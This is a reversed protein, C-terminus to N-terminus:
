EIIIKKTFSRNENNIKFICIGKMFRDIDIETKYFRLPLRMLLQGTIDYVEAVSNVLISEDYITILIKNKDLDQLIQINQSDQNENLGACTMVDVTVSTSGTCGTVDVGTVTYTTTTSPHAFVTSGTSSSLGTAPAWSYTIAGSATLSVSDGICIIPNTPFATLTPASNITIVIADTATMSNNDYVIVTYTTTSIPTATPNAVTTSSLGTSPSWLYTYPPTGGSATPSGGIGVSNIACLNIDSGANAVLQSFGNTQISFLILIIIPYSIVQTFSTKAKM